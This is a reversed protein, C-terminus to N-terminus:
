QFIGHILRLISHILEAGAFLAALLLLVVTLAYEVLAPGTDEPKEPRGRRLNLYRELYETALSFNYQTAYYKRTTMEHAHWLRRSLRAFCDPGPYSRIYHFAFVDRLVKASTRKGAHVLTIESLLFYLACDDLPRGKSNLFLANTHASSILDDRYKLYTELPEILELPLVRHIRKDGKCEDPSFTYQWITTSPDKDTRSKVWPPIRMPANPPIIDCYLNDQPDAGKKPDRIRCECINRARWPLVLFWRILLEKMALTAIQRSTSPTQPILIREKFLQEPIDHLANYSLTKRAMRQRREANPERPISRMFNTMWIRGGALQQYQLASGVLVAFVGEVAWPELKRTIVLWDRYKEFVKPRFIQKLSTPYQKKEKLFGCVRRIVAELQKARIERIQERKKVPPLNVYDDWYRHDVEDDVGDARNRRFTILARVERQLTPAMSEVEIAYDDLQAASVPDLDPYDKLLMTTFRSGITWASAFSKDRNITRQDVWNDIEAITLKEPEVRLRAFHRLLELCGEEQAKAFYSRWKESLFQDPKWGLDNARNLLDKIRDSHRRREQPEIRLRALAVIFQRRREYLDDLNISDVPGKLRCQKAFIRITERQRSRSDSQATSKLVDGVTMPHASGCDAPPSDPGQKQLTSEDILNDSNRESTSSESLLDRATV